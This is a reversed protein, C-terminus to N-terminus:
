RVMTRRPANVVHRGFVKAEELVWCRVRGHGGGQVLGGRRVSGGLYWMMGVVESGAGKRFAGLRGEAEEGM